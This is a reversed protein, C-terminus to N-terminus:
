LLLDNTFNDSIVPKQRGKLSRPINKKAYDFAEEVAVNDDTTELQNYGDALGQLMGENAFLRTFVGEGDKVGDGDVDEGATSYVYASRTEETAMSIVRGNIVVGDIDTAVDNMGGARCSDFVFAIRTTGFGDFWSRLEGDWIFDLDSYGDADMEGDSDHVVIAEDTDEADGDDANGKAGHGSFFFVVEDDSTITTKITNIAGLINERTPKQATITPIDDTTDEEFYTGGYEADEGMDKFLYINAPDYGYLTILAKYMHLSDGDSECLDYDTGPYDCIGIVVAYKAGTALLGLAGTATYKEKSGNKKDQGPPSTPKEKTERINDLSLLTKKVVEINTASVPKVLSGSGWAIVAANEDAYQGGEGPVAFYQNNWDIRLDPNNTNVYYQGYDNEWAIGNGGFDAPIAALVPFALVSCITILGFIRKM